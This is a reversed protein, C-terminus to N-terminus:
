LSECKGHQFGIREAHASPRLFGPRLCHTSFNMEVMEQISARAVRRLATKKKHKSRVDEIPKLPLPIRSLYFGDANREGVLSTWFRDYDFVFHDDGWTQKQVQQDLGVGAVMRIDLAMGIAEVASMLLVPPSLDHYRKAAYRIAEAKGAVGQIATVLIACPVDVGFADGQSLTFTVSYLPAGNHKFTLLLDGEYDHEWELPFGLVISDEMGDKVEKWLTYGENLIHEFFMESAHQSLFSYHHTLIKLRTKRSFAQVLYPRYLYKYPLKPRCVLLSAFIPSRMVRMLRIHAPFLMLAPLSRYAARILKLIGANKTMWFIAGLTPSTRNLSPRSESNQMTKM